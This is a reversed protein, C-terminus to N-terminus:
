DNNQQATCKFRSLTQSIERISNVAVHGLQAFAAIESEVRKGENELRDRVQTLEAILRDIETVSTGAIRKIANGVGNATGESEEETEQRLAEQRVLDRIEGEVPPTDRRQVSKNASM